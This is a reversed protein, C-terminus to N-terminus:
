KYYTTAIRYIAPHMQTSNGLVIIFAQEFTPYPPDPPAGGSFKLSKSAQCICIQPKLCCIKLWGYSQLRKDSQSAEVEPQCSKIDEIMQGWYGSWLGETVTGM